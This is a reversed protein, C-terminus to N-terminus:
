KVTLKEDKIGLKISSWELIEGSLLKNSLPNMVIRTIARKLPRAWYQQDFGQKLLQEKLSKEFNVTINKKKL